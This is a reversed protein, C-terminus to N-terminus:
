ELHYVIVGFQENAYLALGVEVYSDTASMSVAEYACQGSDGIFSYDPKYAKDQSWLVLFDRDNLKKEIISLIRTFLAEM